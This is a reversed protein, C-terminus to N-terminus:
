HSFTLFPRVQCLGPTYHKHNIIIILVISFRSVGPLSLLDSVLEPVKNDNVFEQGCIDCSVASSLVPASRLQWHGQFSLLVFLVLLFGDGGKPIPSWPKPCHQVQWPSCILYTHFRTGLGRGCLASAPVGHSGVRYITVGRLGLM